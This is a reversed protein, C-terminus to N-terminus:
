FGGTEGRGPGRRATCMRPNKKLFPGPEPEEVHFLGLPPLRRSLLGMKKQQKYKQM